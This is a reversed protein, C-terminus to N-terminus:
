SGLVAGTAIGSLLLEAPLVDERELERRVAAMAFDVMEVEKLILLVSPGAGSLAVGLVGCEGALPLLRPLLRCVQSRYPQHLRDEMAHALLDERGLAFAATLMAVRQVNAIADAKPYTDPLM